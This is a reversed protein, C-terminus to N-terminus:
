YEPNKGNPSLSILLIIINMKRVFVPRGCLSLVNYLRRLGVYQQRMTVLDYKLSLFLQPRHFLNAAM